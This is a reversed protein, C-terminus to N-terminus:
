MDTEDYEDEELKEEYRSSVDVYLPLAKELMNTLRYSHALNESAGIDWNKELGKTYQEIAVSYRLEDFAKDAKTFYYGSSCGSLVAILGVYIWITKTNM